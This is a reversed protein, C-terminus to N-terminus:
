CTRTRATTSSRCSAAVADEPTRYTPMGASSAIERAEGVSDAAWGARWCTARPAKALPAVARAVDASDVTATPAHIVLVADAQPDQLLM